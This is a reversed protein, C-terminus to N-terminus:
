VDGLKKELQSFTPRETQEYKWCHLMIQYLESTAYPPRSLRQHNPADITKIIKFFTRKFIEMPILKSRRRDLREM